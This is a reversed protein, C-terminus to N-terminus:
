AQIKEKREKNPGYEFKEKKIKKKPSPQLPDYEPLVEHIIEMEKKNELKEVIQEQERTLLVLLVGILAFFIAMKPTKSMRKKILAMRAEQLHQEFQGHLDFSTTQEEDLQKLGVILIYHVELEDKCDSCQDIHKFFARAEDLTLESKIFPVIMKQAERCDM